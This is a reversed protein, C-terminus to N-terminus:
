GTAYTMVDGVLPSVDSQDRVAFGPQRAAPKGDFLADAASLSTLRSDLRFSTFTFPLGNSALPDPGDMVHFHLHPADSNGSNGLAGIVQGSSLTDGPKVKLSNPQLHAYFAYNGDGIDQVIHNGGYQALTLGKPTVGPVQEPLGDLVAVVPGDAVAHIEAGFYPYSDVKARDGTSLRGDGGLQVYDIAFREAAWVKGNIPNLAMRHPTMDCCGNANVWNDGSLPPSISVPKRTQVAVPAVPQTLTPGVLPPMPRAVAIEIEHSLETPVESPNDAVVDLWVYASQGPGLVNTGVASNGVARTWYKLSDGPLTLLRRDGTVASLSNLTVNSPSTNTLMLEYALHTRGDTAAVPVPEALVQGVVPTVMPPPTSTTTSEPPPAEASSCGALTLALVALPYRIRM